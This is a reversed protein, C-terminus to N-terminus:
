QWQELASSRPERKFVNLCYGAPFLAFQSDCSKSCPRQLKLRDMLKSATRITNKAHVENDFGKVDNNDDSPKCSKKVDNMEEDVLSFSM